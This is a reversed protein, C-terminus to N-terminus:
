AQAKQPKTVERIWVESVKYKRALEKYGAGDKFDQRIRNHRARALIPKLNPIYLQSGYNIYDIFTLTQKLGIINAMERLQKPLDATTIKVGDAICFEKCDSEEHNPKNRLAEVFLSFQPVYFQEGGFNEIIQIASKLGAKAAFNAFEVSLDDAYVKIGDIICFEKDEM